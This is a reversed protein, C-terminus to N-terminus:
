RPKTRKVPTRKPGSLMDSWFGYVQKTAEKRVATSQRRGAATIRGRAAGAVANASSLWISMVPNKKTWHNKM